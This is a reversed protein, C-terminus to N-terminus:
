KCVACVLARRRRRLRSGGTDINISSLESSVGSNGNSSSDANATNM